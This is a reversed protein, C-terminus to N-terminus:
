NSVRRREAHRVALDYERKVFEAYTRLSNDIEEPNSRAQYKQVADLAAHCPVEDQRQVLAAFRDRLATLADAGHKAPLVEGFADVVAKLADRERARKAFITKLAEEDGVATGDDLVAAIVDVNSGPPMADLPLDRTEGPMIREIRENSGPLGHTVESLYGDASYLERHTGSSSRTTAAIVWATVPQRGTNTLKVHAPAATAVDSVRLPMEPAAALVASMAAAHVVIRLSM